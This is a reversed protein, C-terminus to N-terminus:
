RKLYNAFEAGDLKGDRNRDLQDFNRILAPDAAAEDKSIAGDRNKDLAQLTPPKNPEAAKTSPNPSVVPAQAPQTVPAPSTKPATQQQPQNMQAQAGATFIGLVALAIAAKPPFKM